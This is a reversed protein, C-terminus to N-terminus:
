LTAHTLAINITAKYGALMRTFAEIDDGMYKIRLWDRISTRDEGSRLFCKEIEKQFEICATGCRRLPLDLQLFDTDATADITEKLPGLVGNLAQVEELLRRVINPHSKFSQIKNYLSVSADFAFAALGVIGSAVGIAEAM